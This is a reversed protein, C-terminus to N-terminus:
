WSEDPFRGHLMYFRKLDGITGPYAGLHAKIEEVSQNSIRSLDYLMKTDRVLNEIRAQMWPSMVTIPLISKVVKDFSGKNKM